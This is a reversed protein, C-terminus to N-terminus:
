SDKRQATIQAYDGLWEFQPNRRLQISEIFISYISRRWLRKRREAWNVNQSYCWRDFSLDKCAETGVDNSLHNRLELHDSLLEVPTAGPRSQWLGKGRRSAYGLAALKFQTTTLSWGDELFSIVSCSIPGRPKHFLFPQAITAYCLHGPHKFLRLLSFHGKYSITWKPARARGKGDIERLFGLAKLEETINNFAESDLLKAEEPNLPRYEVGTPTVGMLILKLWLGVVTVAALLGLLIAWPTSIGIDELWVCALAWGGFFFVLLVCVLFLAPISRM